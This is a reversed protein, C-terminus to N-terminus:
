VSPNLIMAPTIEAECNQDLSVQTNGNCALACPQAQAEQFGLLALASILIVNYWRSFTNKREHTFNTKRM